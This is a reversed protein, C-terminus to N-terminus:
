NGIVEVASLKANSSGFKVTIIGNPDATANCEEIDAINSAGARNFIDFQTLILVDPPSSAGKGNITVNFVRGGVTYGTIEAFHLRVTYNANATFGPLSYSFTGWRETQYVSQPAPTIVNSTDIAANVPFSTSGGSFHGDSSFVGAAVGGAAIAYFRTTAPLVEIGDCKALAGSFAITVTGDTNPPTTFEEVIAKDKGGATAYIDFNSLVTQGNIAVNFRRQGTTYGTLEAFHLRVKCSSGTALGPITYTVPGWRETQYVAQPAPDTVGSTDIADAVSNTGGTGNKIYYADASFSSVGSSQGCGIRYVSAPIVEIGSSKANGAFSVTVLGDNDATANFEEVVAKNKGGATAYIDFGNLVQHGNIAVNFLRQGTTYGTLEAFHLRVKYVDNPILNPILYSFAGHRESQYVAQPAPNIVGSVDIAPPGPATYTSGGSAFEDAVFTGAAGNSGSNIAYVSTQLCAKVADFWVKAMKQYGCVISIGGSVASASSPNTPHVNDTLDGKSTTLADNMDVYYVNSGKSAVIGPIAANYARVAENIALGNTAPYQPNPPAKAPPHNDAYVLGPGGMPTISAVLIKVNPLTTRIKDILNSLRISTDSVFQSTGDETGHWIDNTGIMLLIMDPQFALWDQGSSLNDYIEGSGYNPSSLNPGIEFGPHGENAPGTTQSAANSGVWTVSEGDNALLDALYQRYGAGSAYPSPEYGYTISDGLAMIKLTAQATASLSTAYLLGLSILLLLSLDQVRSILARCQRTVDIGNMDCTTM